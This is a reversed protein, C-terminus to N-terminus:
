YFDEYVKIHNTGLKIQNHGLERCAYHRSNWAKFVHIHTRMTTLTEEEYVLICDVIENTSHLSPTHISNPKVYIKFMSAVCKPKVHVKVKSPDPDACHM